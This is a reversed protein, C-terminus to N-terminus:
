PGAKKRGPVGEAPPRAGAGAEGQVPRIEGVWAYGNRGNQKVHYLAEDTRMLLGAMDCGDHPFLAIGISAGVQGSGGELDLPQSLSRILRLAVDAAQPLREVGRLLVAFEDGGTRAVLHPARVEDRMRQALQRLAADGAPHGLRDNIAKFGDLDVLLLAGPAEDLRARLLAEGLQEQFMRRNPLRTLADHFAMFRIRARSRLTVHVLLGSGISMLAGLVALMATPESWQRWGAEPRAALEWEGTGPLSMRLAVHPQGFLAADGWLVADGGAPGGHLARMAVRLGVQASAQRLREFFQRADILVAVTGWYRDRESASHPMALFVPTYAVLVEDDPGLAVPGTTLSRRSARVAALADLHRRPDAEAAGSVPEDIAFAPVTNSGRILSVGRILAEGQTFGEALEMFLARDIGGRLAIIRGLGESLALASPLRQMLQAQLGNLREGVLVQQQHLEARWQAQTALATLSLLLLGALTSILRIGAPARLLDQWSRAGYRRGAFLLRRLRGLPM